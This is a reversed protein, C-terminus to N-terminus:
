QELRYTGGDWGNSGYDYLALEYRFTGEPCTETTTPVPSPAGSPAPSFDYSYADLTELKSEFAILARLHAATDVVGDAPSTTADLVSALSYTADLVSASSTAASAEGLGDGLWGAPAELNIAALVDAYPSAEPGEQAAARELLCSVSLVALGLRGLSVEVIEAFGHRRELVREQGTPTHESRCM